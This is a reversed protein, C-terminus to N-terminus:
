YAYNCTKYYDTEGGVLTIGLTKIPSENLFYNNKLKFSSGPAFVNRFFAIVCLQQATINKGNPGRM